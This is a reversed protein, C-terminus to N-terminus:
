LFRVAAIKSCFRRKAFMYTSRIMSFLSRKCDEWWVVESPLLFYEVEFYFSLILKFFVKIAIRQAMHDFSTNQYKLDFHSLLRIYSFHDKKIM